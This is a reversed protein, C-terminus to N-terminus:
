GNDIGGKENLKDLIMNNQEIVEEFLKRNELLLNMMDNHLREFIEDNTSQKQLEDNNQLQLYFSLVTLIDLMTLNNNM